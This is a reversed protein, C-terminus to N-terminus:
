LGARMKRKKEAKTENYGNWWGNGWWWGNGHNAFTENKAKIYNPDTRGKFPYVWGIYDKWNESAM